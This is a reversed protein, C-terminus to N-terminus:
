ERMTNKKKKLKWAIRTTVDIELVDGIGFEEQDKILYGNYEVNKLWCSEEM